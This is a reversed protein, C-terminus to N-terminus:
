ACCYSSNENFHYFNGIFIPRAVGFSGADKPSVRSLLIIDTTPVVLFVLETALIKISGVEVKESYMSSLKALSVGAWCCIARYM